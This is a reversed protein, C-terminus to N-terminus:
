MKGAGSKISITDGFLAESTKQKEKPYSPILEYIVESKRGM